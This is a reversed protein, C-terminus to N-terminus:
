RESCRNNRFENIRETGTKYSGRWGSKKLARELPSPSNNEGEKNWKCFYRYVNEWKPFDSPLMRWQCGSKLVYCIACFVDYLDVKRPKTVFSVGELIGRILNFQELSIDSCYVKRM